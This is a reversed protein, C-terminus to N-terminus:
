SEATPPYRHDTDLKLVYERRIRLWRPIYVSALHLSVMCAKKFADSAQHGICGGFELLMSCICVDTM